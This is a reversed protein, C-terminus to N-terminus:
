AGSEPNAVPWEMELKLSEKRMRGDALKADGLGRARPPLRLEAPVKGLAQGKFLSEPLRYVSAM